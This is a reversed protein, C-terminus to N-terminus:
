GPERNMAQIARESAREMHGLADRAAKVAVHGSFDRLLDLARKAHSSAVEACDVLEPLAAIARANARAQVRGVDRHAIQAIRVGSASVVVTITRRADDSTIARWQGPTIHVSM